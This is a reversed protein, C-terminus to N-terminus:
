CHKNNLPSWLHAMFAFTNHTFNCKFTATESQKHTLM